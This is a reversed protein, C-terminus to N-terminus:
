SAATIQEDTELLKRLQIRENRGLADEEIEAYLRHLILNRSDQGFAYANITNGYLKYLGEDGVERLYALLLALPDIHNKAAFYDIQEVGLGLSSFSFEPEGFVLACAFLDADRETPDVDVSDLAVDAIMSYDQWHGLAVHALEHAVKYATKAYPKDNRCIAVFPRGDVNLVAADMKKTNAGFNRVHVVPLGHDWSYGILDELSICARGQSLAASLLENRMVAADGPLPVFPRNYSCFVLEAVRHILRHPASVQGPNLGARIYCHLPGLPAPVPGDEALWSEYNLALAQALVAYVQLEGAPTHMLADSWTDPIFRDRVFKPQLEAAKAARAVAAKITTQGRM